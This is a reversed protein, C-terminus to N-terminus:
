QFLTDYWPLNKNYKFALENIFYMCLKECKRGCCFLLFVLIISVSFSFIRVQQSKIIFLLIVLIISVLIYIDEGTIIFLLFVLIISVLIYIDEGTIIFLLFVLIISVVVSFIRVQQHHLPHIGPYYQSCRFIVVIKATWVKAKQSCNQKKYLYFSKFIYIFLFFWLLDYTIEKCYQGLM